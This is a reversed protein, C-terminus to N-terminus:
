SRLCNRAPGDSSLRGNKRLGIIFIGSASRNMWLSSTSLFISFFFLSDSCCSLLLVLVCLRVKDFKSLGEANMM